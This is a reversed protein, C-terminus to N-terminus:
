CTRKEADICNDANFPRRAVTDVVVGMEAHVVFFDNLEVMCYYHGSVMFWTIEM